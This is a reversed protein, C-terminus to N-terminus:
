TNFHTLVWYESLIKLHTLTGPTNNLPILIHEISDQKEFHVSPRHHTFPGWAIKDHKTPCKLVNLGLCFPRWKASSVNLRMKKFSYRLIEILIESFNTGLPRILLIGANSWIIAQRRDPSLGNDSGILTLNGVCIHTVRGWHTLLVYIMKNGWHGLLVDDVNEKPYLGHLVQNADYVTCHHWVHTMAGWNVSLGVTQEAVEESQCYSFVANSTWQSPFDIKSM